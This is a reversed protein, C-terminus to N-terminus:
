PDIGLTNQGDTIMLYGMSMEPNEYKASKIIEGINTTSGTATLPIENIAPYISHDFYYISHKIDKNILKERFSSLDKNLRNLSNEKHYGMSMSNDVFVSLERVRERQIIQTINPQLLGILLIVVFFLRLFPLISLEKEPKFYIIYWIMTIVSGLLLIWFWYDTQHLFEIIM